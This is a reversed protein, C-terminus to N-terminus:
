RKRYSHMWLRSLRQLIWQSLILLIVATLILVIGACLRMTLPEHFILTGFFVATVPELAGLIATPTAGVLQIARTTFLLSVATPFLALALANGWLVGRPIPQLDCGFNLRVVYISLGFLLAYFTLKETSITRLISRNVGVIYIAYCLSSLMVFTMGLTSLTAHDGRYLLAIGCTALAISVLTVPTIRERFFLAMILAVLIPYVFLLTSAIGAEMYNYSTYLFLSSASFLLGMAVLPLIAQRPLAFDLGRMRIILALMPLALAYRYFLVSDAHLGVQYLPLTFLPNMGYTIAAIAGCLLGLTRKNMSRKTELLCIYRLLLRRTEFFSSEVLACNFISLRAM